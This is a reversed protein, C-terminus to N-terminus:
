PTEIALNVGTEYYSAQVRTKWTNAVKGANVKIGRAFFNQPYYQPDPRLDAVAISVEKIGLGDMAQFSDVLAQQCLRSLWIVALKTEATIQIMWMGSGWYGRDLDWAITKGDGDVVAAADEGTEDGLVRGATDESGVTVCIQPALLDVLPYTPMVYLSNDTKDRTNDTLHLAALFTRIEALDTEDLDDFTQELRYNEMDQYSKLKTLITRYLFIDVNPFGM